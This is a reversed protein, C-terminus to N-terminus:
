QQNTDNSYLLTGPNVNLGKPKLRDFFVKNKRYHELCFHVLKFTSYSDIMNARDKRLNNVTKLVDNGEPFHKAQNDTILEPDFKQLLNLLCVFVASSRIGGEPDHSM